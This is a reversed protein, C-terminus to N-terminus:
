QRAQEAPFGARMYTIVKWIEARALADKFAPMDTEFVQGGDSITWLMYEDVAMPTQILYALLVPSPNLANAQKGDGLGTPGHCSACHAQYLARGDSITEADPLLPNRAARYANPIGQHIFIWHRMMRKSIGPGMHRPAWIDRQMWYPNWMDHQLPQAQRDPSQAAVQVPDLLAGVAVTLMVVGCIVLILRTKMARM